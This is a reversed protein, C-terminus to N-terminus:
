FTLFVVYIMELPACLLNFSLYIKIYCKKDFKIKFSSTQKTLAKQKMLNLLCGAFMRRPLSTSFVDQLRRWHLMKKTKWSTKFVYSCSRKCVHRSFTNSSTEFVDQLRKLFVYQLYTKFVDKLCRSSTKSFLFHKSPMYQNKFWYKEFSMSSALYYIFWLKCIVQQLSNMYNTRWFNVRPNLLKINLTFTLVRQCFLFPLGNAYACYHRAQYKWGNISIAAPPNLYYTCTVM